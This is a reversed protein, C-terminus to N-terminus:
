EDQFLNPLGEWDRQERRSWYSGQGHIINFVKEGKKCPHEDEKFFIPGWTVQEEEREKRAARQRVEIKIKEEDAEATEGEEFYRQDMRFRSDTKAIGGNKM